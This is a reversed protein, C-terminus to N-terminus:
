KEKLKGELYQVYLAETVHAVNVGFFDATSSVLWATSEDPHCGWLEDFKDCMKKQKETLPGYVERERLNIKGRM